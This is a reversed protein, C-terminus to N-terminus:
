LVIFASTITALPNPVIFKNGHGRSSRIDHM